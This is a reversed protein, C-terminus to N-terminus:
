TAKASNIEESLRKKGWRADVKVGLAEAEDRLAQLATMAEDLETKDPNSGQDPDTDAIEQDEDSIDEVESAPPRPSWGPRSIADHLNGRTVQHPNGEPDWVTVIAKDRGKPRTFDPEPKGIPASPGMGLPNDESVAM